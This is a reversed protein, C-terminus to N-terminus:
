KRSVYRLAVVAIIAIAAIIAWTPVGTSNTQLGRVNVSFGSSDFGVTAATRQALDLDGTRSSSSSSASYGVPIAM